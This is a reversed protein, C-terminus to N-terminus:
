PLIVAFSFVCANVMVMQWKNRRKAFVGQIMARWNTGCERNPGQQCYEDRVKRGKEKKRMRKVGERSKYDDKRSLM